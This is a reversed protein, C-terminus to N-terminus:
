GGLFPPNLLALTVAATGLEGVAAMQGGIYGGIDIYGDDEIEQAEVEEYRLFQHSVMQNVGLAVAAGAVWAAWPEAGVAAALLGTGAGALASLHAVLWGLAIHVGQRDGFFKRIAPRRWKGIRKSWVWGPGPRTKLCPGCFPQKRRFQILDAQFLTECRVCQIRPAM